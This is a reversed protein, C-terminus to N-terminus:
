IFVINRNNNYIYLIIYVWKFTNNSLIENIQKNKNQLDLCSILM